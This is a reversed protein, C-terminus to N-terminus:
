REHLFELGRLALYVDDVYFMAFFAAMLETIGAEKLESEERLQRM